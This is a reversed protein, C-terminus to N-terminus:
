KGLEEYLKCLKEAENDWNYKEEIARRGNEGLKKAYEKDNYLRIIEEAMKKHDGSPIVIGCNTENVIRALPKCDSVVVPKSMTMYQFLKHPITNNTHPSAYHPVIGVDIIKLYSPVDKFDVWGTFFVKKSINLIKASDILNTKNIGDGVLILKADPAKKVIEPMAKIAVDLGRHPGFGGIYNIKFGDKFKNYIKPNVQSLKLEEMNSTNMVVVIKNYPTGKKELRYQNEEIVVIIRNCKKCSMREIIKWGSKRVFIIIKSKIGQIKKTGIMEPWNEHMDFIVPIKFRNVARISTLVLPLDHVHIADIEHEKVFQKIKKLWIKHYPYYFNVQVNKRIIGVPEVKLRSIEIGNFNDILKDEKNWLCILFVNHGKSLLAEAEKKVRIDPPFASKLVMCINM